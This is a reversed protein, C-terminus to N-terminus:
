VVSKRDGVIVSTQALLRDVLDWCGLDVYFLGLRWIYRVEAEHGQFERCIKRAERYHFGASGLRGESRDMAGLFAVGRAAQVAMRSKTARNQLAALYFRTSDTHGEFYFQIALEGLLQCTLGTADCSRSATLALEYQRRRSENDDMRKYINGLKFHLYSTIWPFENEQMYAISEEFFSIREADPMGKKDRYTKSLDTLRKAETIVANDGRRLRKMNHLGSDTHYVEALMTALIDLWPITSSRDADSADYFGELLHIYERRMVSEGLLDCYNILDARDGDAMHEALTPDFDPAVRLIHEIDQHRSYYDWSITGLGVLALIPIILLVRKIIPESEDRWFLPALRLCL